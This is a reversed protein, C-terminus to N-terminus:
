IRRCDIHSSRRNIRSENQILKSPVHSDLPRLYQGRDIAVHHHNTATGGSQDGRTVKGAATKAHAHEFLVIADSRGDVASAHEPQVREVFQRQRARGYEGRRVGGSEDRRVAAVDDHGGIAHARRHDIADHEIALQGVGREVGAHRDM